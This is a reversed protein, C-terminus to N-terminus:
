SGNRNTEDTKDYTSSDYEFETTMLQSTMNLSQNHKPGNFFGWFRVQPSPKDLVMMALRPTLQVGL